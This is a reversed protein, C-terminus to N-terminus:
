KEKEEEKLQNKCNDSLKIISKIGIIDCEKLFLEIINLVDNGRDLLKKRLIKFSDDKNGAYNITKGKIDDTVDLVEKFLFNMRKRVQDYIKQGIESTIEIKNDM